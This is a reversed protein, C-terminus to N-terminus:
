KRRFHERWEVGNEKFSVDEKGIHTITIGEFNDGEHFLRNNILIFSSEPDPSWAIAQLHIREDKKEELQSPMKHINDPSVAPVGTKISVEATPQTVPVETNSSVEETPRTVPVETKVPVEETPMTVPVETNSSVEEAPSTNLAETKVPVVAMPTSKKRDLDLTQNADISKPKEDAITIKKVSSEGQPKKHITKSTHQRSADMTIQKKPTKIEIKTLPISVPGLPTESVPSVLTESVPTLPIDTHLSYFWVSGSILLLIIFGFAIQKNKQRIRLKADIQDKLEVPGPWTLSPDHHDSENEIKRLAKLITSL